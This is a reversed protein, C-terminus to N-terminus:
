CYCDIPVSKSHTQIQRGYHATNAFQEFRLLDFLFARREKDATVITYGFADLLRPAVKVDHENAGRLLVGCLSGTDDVRAHLPCARSTGSQGLRRFGYFPTKHIHDYGYCGALKTRKARVIDVVALKKSDLHQKTARVGSCLRKVALVLQGM